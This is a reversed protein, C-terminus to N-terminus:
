HKSATDVTLAAFICLVLIIGTFKMITHLGQNTIRLLTINYGDTFDLIRIHILHHSSLYLSQSLYKTEEKTIDSIKISQNNTADICDPSINQERM